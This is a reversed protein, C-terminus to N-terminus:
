IKHPIKSIYEAKLKDFFAIDQETLTAADVMKRHYDAQKQLQKIDGKFGFNRTLFKTDWADMIIHYRDHKSDNRIQHWNNTWLMYVGGDAPMHLHEGECIHVCDPNSIIPIHIRAMYREEVCDRHVLSKSGAKLCTVRARRPHFGMFELQDMIRKIEGQCVQTPNKHEFADSVKLYNMAKWTHESGFLISKLEDDDAHFVEWGDRWDGTRSQISWGGFGNYQKSEYEEGQIFQDGATFVYKEVDKRLQDINVNFGLKEYFM